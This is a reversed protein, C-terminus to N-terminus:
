LASKEVGIYGPGSGPGYSTAWLMLSKKCGNIRHFFGSLWQLALGIAVVVGHRVTPAALHVHPPNSNNSM